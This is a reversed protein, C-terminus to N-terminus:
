NILTIFLLFGGVFLPVLLAVVMAILVELGEM